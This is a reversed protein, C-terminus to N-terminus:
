KDVTEFNVQVSKIRVEKTKAFIRYVRQKPVELQARFLLKAFYQEVEDLSKHLTATYRGNTKDTPHWFVVVAAQLFDSLTPRNTYTETGWTREHEQVLGLFDLEAM